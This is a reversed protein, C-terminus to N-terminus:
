IISNLDVVIEGKGDIAGWRDGRRVVARDQGPQIQEVLDFLESSVPAGDPGMLQWRARASSASDTAWFLGNLEDSLAIVQAFTPPMIWTGGSTVIGWRKGYAYPFSRTLHDGLSKLERGPNAYPPEAVLFANDSIRIILGHEAPVVPQGDQDIVGLRNGVLVVALGRDFRSISNYAPAIVFRGTADIAGYKGGSKVLARGAAFLDVWDFQPAIVTDGNRNVYGCRAGEFRCTPILTDGNKRSQNELADGEAESGLTAPLPASSQGLAAQMAVLLIAASAPLRFWTNL